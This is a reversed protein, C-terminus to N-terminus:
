KKRSAFVFSVLVATGVTIVNLYFAKVYCQNGADCKGDENSNADYVAGFVLSMAQGGLAVGWCVWGWNVGYHGVGFRESMVTPTVSFISGYAFGILVTCVWLLDINTVFCISLMGVLMLITCVAILVRRRIGYRHLLFDSLFGFSLRGLCSFASILSVQLGQQKNILEPDTALSSVVKGVYNIYMLGAGSIIMCVYFLMWFDRSKFLALGYVDIGVTTQPLSNPSLKHEHKLLAADETDGNLDDKSDSEDGGDDVKRSSRRAENIPKPAEDQEIGVKTLFLAGLIAAVTLVIAMFLLFGYTDSEARDVFLVTNLSSFILASLGFLAMLIGVVKGRHQSSFNKINTTMSAMHMGSSGIGALCFYFSFLIYNSNKFTGDYTFAMCFYGLFVCVASFLCTISPGWKDTMLGVFMQSIYLGNDGVGVIVALETQTYDLTEALNDSIVSFAYLTGCCAEILIAIGLTFLRVYQRTQRTKPHCVPLIRDLPAM